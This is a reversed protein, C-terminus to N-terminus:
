ATEEFGVVDEIALTFRSVNGNTWRVTFRLCGEDDDYDINSLARLWKGGRERIATVRSLDRPVSIAYM